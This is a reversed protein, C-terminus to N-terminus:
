ISKAPNQELNYRKLFAASELKFATQQKENLRSSENINSLESVDDIDVIAEWEGKPHQQRSM